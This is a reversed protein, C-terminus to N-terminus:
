HARRRLRAPVKSTPGSMGFGFNRMSMALNRPDARIECDYMTTLLATSFIIMMKAFHRGPCMHYGGGYPIWAGPARETTFEWGSGGGPAPAPKLFRGPWFQDVPRESGWTNPDMHTHMPSTLIIHNNPIRWGDIAIDGHSHHRVFYGSIRLRLTEAYIAQLVPQQQLKDMDFQPPQDPGAEPDIILCAEAEQRVQALLHPDSFTEVATWFSTIISNNTTGWIFALDHTAIADLDFGDITDFITKRERFFKSGWVPDDGDADVLAPDFNQLAWVHWDKLARLAGDRARYARPALFRPLGFIMSWINNEFTWRNALFDPHARLLYDGCLSNLFPATLEQEFFTVFNDWSVWDDSIPLTYFHQAIASQFRRTLPMLGPGLLFRHLSKELQYEIRNRPEVQSEPYPKPYAGSDDKAYTKMAATPLGFARNLLFGHLNFSSLDRQRFFAEVNKVGQFIYVDNALFRARVPTANGFVNSASLAWARPDFIARFSFNGWIPLVSPVLPPTKLGAKESNVRHFLVVGVTYNLLCFFLSGTILFLFLDKPGLALLSHAISYVGM